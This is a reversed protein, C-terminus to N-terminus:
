GDTSSWIMQVSVICMGTTDEADDVYQAADDYRDFIKFQEHQCVMFKPREMPAGMPLVRTGSEVDTM